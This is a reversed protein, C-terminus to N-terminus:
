VNKQKLLNMNVKTTKSTKWIVHKKINFKYDVYGLLRCFLEFFCSVFVLFFTKFNVEKLVAFFVYRLNLSPAFYKKRKKLDLHGAFIKRRQLLLEMLNDPTHNYVISKKSYYGKFGRQLVLCAIEEEDVVTESIKFFVKKFAIMEGYKPKMCSLNHHVNWLFKSFFRLFIKNTTVIPVPRCSCVGIKNNLLPLCLKQVSDNLLLIDASAILCIKNSSKELFLNIASYKGKRIGEDIGFIINKYKKSYDEVIKRTKDEGSYVVIIEDILFNELKQKLFSDLIGQINKEENYAFIGVSIKKM